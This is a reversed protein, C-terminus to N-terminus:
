HQPDMCNQYPDPDTSGYRQSFSGSAFGSGAIKTLTRCSTLLFCNKQNDSKAHVNVDNKLSLFDYFTVFCNSDINKKSNKSLLRLIRIQIRIESYHIPIRSVWFMHVRRIRIRLVPKLWSFICEAGMLFINM